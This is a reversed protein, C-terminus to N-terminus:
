DIDAATRPPILSDLGNDDMIRRIRGDAAAVRAKATKIRTRATSERIDTTRTLAKAMQTESIHDGHMAIAAIIAGDPTPKAPRNASRKLGLRRVLAAIRDDEVRRGSEGQSITAAGAFAAAVHDALADPMPQRAKLYAAAIGLLEAAAAVDGDRKKRLLAGIRAERDTM